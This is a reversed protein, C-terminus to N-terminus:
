LYGDRMPRVFIPSKSSGARGVANCSPKYMHRASPKTQTTVTQSTLKGGPVHPLAPAPVPDVSNASLCPIFSFSFFPLLMTLFGAPCQHCRNKGLEFVWWVLDLGMSLGLLYTATGDVVEVEEAVDDTEASEDVAVVLAVGVLVGRRLRFADGLGAFGGRFCCSWPWSSVFKSVM